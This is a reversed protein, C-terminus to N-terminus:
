RGRNLTPQTHNQTGYAQQNYGHAMNSEVPNGEEGQEEGGGRNFMKNLAYGGLALGGAGLMYKAWPNARMWDVAPLAYGATRRGAEYNIAQNTVGKTIGQGVAQGAQNIGQWVAQGVQGAGPVSNLATSTLAAGTGLVGKGKPGGSTPGGSTPGGSSMLNYLSSVPLGNQVANLGTRVALNEARQGWTPKYKPDSTYQDHAKLAIGAIRPVAYNAANNAVQGMASFSQRWDNIGKELDPRNAQENLADYSQQNGMAGSFANYLAGGAGSAGAGVNRVTDMVGSSQKAMGTIANGIARAGSATQKFAGAMDGVSKGLQKQTDLAQNRRRYVEMPNALGPSKVWDEAGKRVAGSVRDGMASGVQKLTSSLQSVPNVPKAAAQNNPAGIISPDLRQGISSFNYNRNPATDFSQTGPNGKNRNINALQAQQRSAMDGLRATEDVNDMIGHFSKGFEGITKIPHSFNSYVQQMYSPSQGEAMKNLISGGTPNTGFTKNTANILAKRALYPKPKERVSTLSSAPGKKPEKHVAHAIGESSDFNVVGEDKDGEGRNPSTAVEALKSIRAPLSWLRALKRMAAEKDGEVKKLKKYYDVDETLHDVAIEEAIRRDNTHEMEHKIAHEVVDKPFDSPKKKDGAGGVLLNEAKKEEQKEVHEPLKKKGTATSWEDCDWSGAQGKGKLLYCLKRQADSKFPM